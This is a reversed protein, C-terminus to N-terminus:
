TVYLAAVVAVPRNRHRGTETRRLCGGMPNRSTGVSL